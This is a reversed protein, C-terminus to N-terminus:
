VARALLWAQAIGVVVYFAWFLAQRRRTVTSGAPREPEGAELDPRTM